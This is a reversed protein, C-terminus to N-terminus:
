ATSNLPQCVSLLPVMLLTGDFTVDNRIDLQLKTDDRRTTM